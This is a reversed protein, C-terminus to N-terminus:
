RRTSTTSRGHDRGRPRERADSGSVSGVKIGAITVTQGQGPTVAQATASSPRSSSTTAAWSRSGPRSTPRSSSRPHGRHHRDGPRGPGRDGRLRAPARPDRPEHSRRRARAPRRRRRPRQPRPGGAHLLPRGHPVAAHAAPAPLRPRTGLPAAINHAWLRDQSRRLNRRPTPCGRRAAPRRRGPLPRLPRQRRLGPERGRAPRRRLLVRPYNPQGTTFPYAGGRRRRDVNGAPVLNHSVCRGSCASRPSCPWRRTTPRPSRRRRPPSCAPPTRGARETAAAQRDAGAVALRRPDDGSAPPHGPLSERALARFPPLADNLHRLSPEPRRWRPPSSASRPPSTPRSRRSRARRHHQLQHDPRQAVGDTSALKAFLDRQGRILNSLDHPHEGLLAQNVIANTRGAKGGYRFTQNIAEAGTLGQVDPDQTADEAATPAPQAGRRLRGAGAQPQDPHGEPALDPDRRAPRRDHTQTVPITSGSSLDPASPSGPQLDLFFNGELFLRPRITVTADKHIPLGEDSVTFTVEAM